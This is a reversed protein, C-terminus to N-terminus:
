PVFLVNRCVQLGFGGDRQYGQAFLVRSHQSRWGVSRAWLEQIQEDSVNKCKGIFNRLWDDDMDQPVADDQLHNLAKTVIAEINFEEVIQEVAVRFQARQVLDTAAVETLEIQSKVRIMQAVAEASAMRRVQM